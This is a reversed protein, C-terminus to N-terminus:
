RAQRWWSERTRPEPMRADAVGGCEGAFGIVVCDITRYRKVKVWERRRAAGYQGDGRKAVVGEISPLLRLWERATEVDATQLVLQLCPQRTSLLGELHVRRADLPEATLDRGSLALLDFAVLVAPREAAAKKLIEREQRLIRNERRLRALEERESTTLGAHRRGEKDLEAQRVWTRLTQAAVGRARSLQALSKAGSRILKVAECRFEPSYAAHTRPVHVEQCSKATWRM